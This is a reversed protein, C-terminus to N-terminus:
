SSISKSLAQKITPNDAVIWAWSEESLLETTIHHSLRVITSATSNNDGTNAYHWPNEDPRVHRVPRLSQHTIPRRDRPVFPDKKAAARWSKLKLLDGKPRSPRWPRMPSKLTAPLVAPCSHSPVYQRDDDLEDDEWAGPNDPSPITITIKRAAVPEIAPSQAVPRIPLM